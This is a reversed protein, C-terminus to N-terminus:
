IGGKSVVTIMEVGVKRGETLLTKVEEARDGQVIIHDPAGASGRVASAGAALRGSLYKAFTNLTEGQPLHLEMGVVTTVCKKGRRKDVKITVIAGSERKNGKTPKVLGKPERGSMDSAALSEALDDMALETVGQTRAERGTITQNADLKRSVNSDRAGLENHHSRCLRLFICYEDPFGCFSCYNVHQGGGRLRQDRHRRSDLPPLLLDRVDHVHPPVLDFREVGRLSAGYFVEAASIGGGTLLLLLLLLM